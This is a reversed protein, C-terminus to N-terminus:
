LREIPRSFAKGGDNANGSDADHHSPVVSLRTAGSRSRTHTHTHTQRHTPHARAGEASGCTVCVRGEESVCM